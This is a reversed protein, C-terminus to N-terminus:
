RSSNLYVHGFYGELIGALPRNSFLRRCWDITRNHQYQFRPFAVEVDSNGELWYELSWPASGEM